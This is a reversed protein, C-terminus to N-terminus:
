SQIEVANHGSSGMSLAGDKIMFDDILVSLYCLVLLLKISVLFVLVMSESGAFRRVLIGGDLRRAAFVQVREASILHVYSASNIDISIFVLTTIAIVSCAIIQIPIQM